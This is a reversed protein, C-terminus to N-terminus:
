LIQLNEAHLLIRRIDPREKGAHKVHVRRHGSSDILLWDLDNMSEYPFLLKGKFMSKFLSLTFPNSERSRKKLAAKFRPSKSFYDLHLKYLQEVDNDPMNTAIEALSNNFFNM